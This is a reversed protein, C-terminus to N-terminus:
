CYRTLQEKLSTNYVAILKFKAAKVATHQYVVRDIVTTSIKQEDKERNSTYEIYQSFGPTFKILLSM